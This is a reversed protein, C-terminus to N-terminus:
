ASCCCPLSCFGRRSVEGELLLSFGIGALMAVCFGILPEQYEPYVVLKWLPLLGIWNIIPSGFRKLLMLVLAAAFFLTLARLQASLNTRGPVVACIIALLGFLAPM